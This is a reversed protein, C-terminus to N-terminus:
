EIRACKPLLMTEMAYDNVIVADRIFSTDLSPVDIIM